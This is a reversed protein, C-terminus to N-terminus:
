APLICSMKYYVNYVNYVCIIYTYVNYVYVTYIIHVIQISNTLVYLISYTLLYLYGYLYYLNEEEVIHTEIKIRSLNGKFPMVTICYQM